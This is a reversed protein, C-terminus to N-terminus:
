VLNQQSVYQIIEANKAFGLKEFIRRRYTNVSSVSIGLRQSIERISTGGGILLFIQFERDSLCEHPAAYASSYSHEYLQQAVEETIYSGQKYVKRIATAITKAAHDKTLYGSAGNNLARQAFRNEPHMSLVLVKTKLNESKIDKLVEIGDKDPLSIDLVVVDVRHERLLSMTEVASGAEGVLSIDAQTEILKRMGDRILEHDDAIVVTIM